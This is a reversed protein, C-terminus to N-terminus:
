AGRAPGNRERRLVDGQQAPMAEGRPARPVPRKDEAVLVALGEGREGGLTAELAYGRLDGLREGAKVVCPVRERSVHEGRAQERVGHRCEEPVLVHREDPRPVSVRERVLDRPPRMGKQTGGPDLKPTPAIVPRELGM